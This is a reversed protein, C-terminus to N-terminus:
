VEFDGPQPFTLEKTGHKVLRYGRIRAVEPVSEDDPNVAVFSWGDNRVRLDSKVRVTAGPAARIILTGDIDVAGAEFRVDGELLLTSRQSIRVNQPCPFVTEVSRFVPHSSPLFVVHPWETHEITGGYTTTRPGEVRVGHHRLLACNAAYVSMESSACGADSIGSHFKQEADHLSNKAPAYLCHTLTPAYEQDLFVTVGVKAGAPLIRAYDQMMSEVRSPKKFATKTADTFKPNIFEPAVNGRRKDLHAIYSDIAFILQNMNGPYPSFGDESNVDGDPSVGSSRLVADIYNYEVNCTMVGGTAADHLKMLGGSAAKAKRPVCLSNMELNASVSVGLAAPLTRFVMPNTDQFFAVFRVGEAAWKRPLGTQYLLIHVDGHGHPKTELLADPGLALTCDIDALCAVKEQKMLTVRSPDLGFYAHDALLKTTLDHTDDSTMIALPAHKHTGGTAGAAPASLALIHKAYLDLFCTESTTESPLAVKINSKFGLREGLGGAVLVFAVQGNACATYGALENAFFEASAFPLRTTDPVSPTMGDFPSRDHLADQLLRRANDIYGLLGGDPYAADLQALQEQLAPSAPFLHTQGRARLGQELAAPLKAGEGGPM